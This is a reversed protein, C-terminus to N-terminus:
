SRGALAPLTPGALWPLALGLLLLLALVVSLRSFFRETSVAHEFADAPAERMARRIARLHPLCALPFLAAVAAWPLVRGSPAAAGLAHAAAPLAFYLSGLVAGIGLGGRRHARGMQPLHRTWRPVLRAECRGYLVGLGGGTLASAAILALTTLVAVLRGEAAAPLLAMRLALGVLYALLLALSAAAIGLAGALGSALAAVPLALLALQSRRRRGLREARQLFLLNLAHALFCGVAPLPMLLLVAGARGVAPAGRWGLNAANGALLAAAIAAPLLGGLAWRWCPL